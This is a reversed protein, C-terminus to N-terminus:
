IFKKGILEAFKPKFAIFAPSYKKLTIITDDKEKTTIDAAVVQCHKLLNQWFYLVRHLTPEVFMELALTAEQFLVLFAIFEKLLEHDIKCVKFVMGRGRARLIETLESLAEDVSIMCRFASKWRTVNEQKLTKAIENKDIDDTWIDTTNGIRVVEAQHTKLAATLIKRGANSRKQVNRSITTPDPLINKVLMGVKSNVGINLVTQTYNRFGRGKVIYFPRMDVACMDALAVTILKKESTTADHRMATATMVQNTEVTPCSQKSM